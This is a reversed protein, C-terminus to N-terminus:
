TQKKNSLSSMQIAFNLQLTSTPRCFSKVMVCIQCRFQRKWFVISWTRRIQKVDAWLCFIRRQLCDDFRVGGRTISLIGKIARLFNSRWSKHVSGTDQNKPSRPLFRCCYSLRFYVWMGPFIIWNIVLLHWMSALKQILNVKWIRTSSDSAVGMGCDWILLIKRLM